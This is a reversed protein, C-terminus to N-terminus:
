NEQYRKYMLYQFSGVNELAMPRLMKHAGNPGRTNFLNLAGLKKEPGSKTKM